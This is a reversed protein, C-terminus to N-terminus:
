KIAQEYRKREKSDARRASIIRIIETNNNEELTHAVLLFLCGDVLGITQWRYEGNEIRDQSTLAFPDAFIRAALEFSVQHKKINAAAKQSDWAFKIM